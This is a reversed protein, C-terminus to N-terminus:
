IDLLESGDTERSFQVFISPELGVSVCAALLNQNMNMAFGATSDTLPLVFHLSLLYYDVGPFSRCRRLESQNERIFELAIEQQIQYSPTKDSSLYITFGSTKAHRM